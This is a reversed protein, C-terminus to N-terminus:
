PTIQQATLKNHSVHVYFQQHRQALVGVIALRNPNAIRIM